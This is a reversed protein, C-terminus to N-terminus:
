FMLWSPRYTLAITRWNNPLLNSNNMVIGTRQEFNEAINKVIALKLDSPCNIGYGATYTVVLGNIFDGCIRKKDDGRVKYDTEITLTDDLGNKVTLIENIIPKPLNVFEYAELWEARITKAYISIGAFKEIEVTASKCLDELLINHTDTDISLYRKIYDLNILNTDVSLEKVGILNTRQM